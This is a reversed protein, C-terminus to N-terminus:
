KDNVGVICRSRFGARRGFEHRRSDRGACAAWAQPAKTKRLM